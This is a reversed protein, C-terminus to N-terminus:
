DDTRKHIHCNQKRKKDFLFISIKKEIAMLKTPLDVPLEIKDPQDTASFGHYQCYMCSNFPSIKSKM